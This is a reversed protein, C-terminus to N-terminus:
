PSQISSLVPRCPAPPSPPSPQFATLREALKGRSRELRKRFTAFNIGLDAAIRPGDDEDLYYRRLITRDADPLNSLAWQVDERCAMAALWDEGPVDVDGNSYNQRHSLADHQNHRHRDIKVRRVVGSLYNARNDAGHLGAAVDRRHALCHVWVTQVIIEIEDASASRSCRETALRILRDLDNFGPHAPDYPEQELAALTRQWAEADHINM